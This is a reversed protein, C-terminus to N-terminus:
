RRNPTESVSQYSINVSKTEYGECQQRQRVSSLTVYWRFTENKENAFIPIFNIKIRIFGDVSSLKNGFLLKTKNWWFHFMFLLNMKFKNVQEQTVVAM